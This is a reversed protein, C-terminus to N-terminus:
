GANYHLKRLAARMEATFEPDPDDDLAYAFSAADTSDGHGGAPTPVRHCGGRDVRNPDYQARSPANAVGTKPARLSTRVAARRQLTDDTGIPSRSRASRRGVCCPATGTPRVGARRARRSM